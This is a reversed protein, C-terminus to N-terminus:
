YGLFADRRVQKARGRLGRAVADVFDPRGSVFATRDALDPVHEAITPGDVEDVPLRVVRAGAAELEAVYPQDDREGLVVVVDRDRHAALQSLFPTVGIGAGVLLVPGSEPWVFDGHVSTVRVRDGPQLTALARKYSSGPEPHRTALVVEPGPASLVSFMRRRGRSDARHPVDVEVYQGPAFHLPRDADFVYEVVDGSLPRRERLVLSRSGQRLVLAVLGTVVLTLEYTSTFPEVTWPEGFLRSTLLPWTFLVAALAAVGWQQRQRPPLTLPESLMFGAFFVIPTSYATFRVADGIDAGIGLQWWITIAAAIVTFIAGLALRRTRYLVVLAGVLVFWFLSESGVWWGTFPVPWGTAWGLMLTLVVGAAAPNVVHRGRWAFAYKSAQALAAVLALWGLQEADTSPWFLFWLILATVVSSELHPHVGVSRGFVVNAVVSSAVMVVLTLLMAGVSFISPDLVGLAAQVVAVAALVLLVVTVLRYMTFRGLQRDLFTM